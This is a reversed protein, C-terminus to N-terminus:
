FFTVNEADFHQVIEAKQEETFPQGRDPDVGDCVYYTGYHLVAIDGKQAGGWMADCFEKVDDMTKGAIGLTFDVKDGCFDMGDLHAVAQAAM